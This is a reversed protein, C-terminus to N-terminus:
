IFIYFLIIISEKFSDGDSENVLVGIEEQALSGKFVSRIKIM